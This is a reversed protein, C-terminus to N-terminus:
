RHSLIIKDQRQQFVNLSKSAIEAPQDQVMADFSGHSVCAINCTRCTVFALPTNSARPSGHLWPAMSQDLSLSPCTTPSRTGALTCSFRLQCPIAKQFKIDSIHSSIGVSNDWRLALYVLELHISIFEGISYVATKINQNCHGPEQPTGIAWPSGPSAQPPELWCRDELIIPNGGRPKM